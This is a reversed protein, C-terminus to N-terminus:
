QTSKKATHELDSTKYSNTYSATEKDFNENLSSASISDM